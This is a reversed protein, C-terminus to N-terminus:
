AVEEHRPTLCIKSEVISVPIFFSFTVSKMEM